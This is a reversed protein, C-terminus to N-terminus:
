DDWWWGLGVLGLGTHAVMVASFPAVFATEPEVEARITELLGKADDEAQAHLAAVHLRTMRSRSARWAGLIRDLAAERSFAPRLPKAHGDRFEFLPQMGLWRNALGAVGPVRGSKVLQDLSDVTALLRVREIVRRAARQVEEFPEGGAAARAAALVVLGEAGAATGTDVVRVRGGVMRAAASAAKFTSSMQRSVTLVLVDGERGEVAKLVEGPSPGSTSIGEGVRAVVETIPLAGDPHPVGGIIVSMPVVVIGLEAVLESPISAASDTVVSVNTM